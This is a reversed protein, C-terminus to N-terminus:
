KQHYLYVYVPKTNAFWDSGTLWIFIMQGTLIRLTDLYSSRTAQMHRYLTPPNPLCNHIDPGTLM